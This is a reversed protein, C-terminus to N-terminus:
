KNPKNPKPPKAGGAQYDSIIKAVAPDPKVNYSGVDYNKFKIDVVEKTDPDVLLETLGVLKCHSGSEVIYTQNPFKGVQIPSDTVAHDHSALVLDLGEVMRLMKQDDGLGQHTMAVIVDAQKKMEPMLRNIADAPSEKVLDKGVHPNASTGMNPEVIGVFAVKLGNLDKIVYPKTGALSDNISKDHVNAALVDISKDLRGTFESGTAGKGFQFEHNGLNVINYGMENLIEPMPNFRNATSYPPNYTSDGGDVLIAGPNQKQLADILGAVKPMRDFKGHMDNTSIITIKIPEKSGRDEVSSAAKMASARLDNAASLDSSSSSSFSDQLPASVEKQPAKVDARSPTQVTFNNSSISNIM